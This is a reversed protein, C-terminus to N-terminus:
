TSPAKPQDFTYVMSVGEIPKQAVGNIMTPEKVGAAELITPVIDIVSSFQLRIEGTQKIRKPWSIVLGNRTGGFHSAVQKTWQFPTNMAHAWGVPYHNYTLPGGLDDMISLLYPLSETAGNGAVGVENAMGQLTGEGSAGNDGMEYIILTNDLEGTDEISQIVRGINYDCFALCGAYVEMMHAYLKKEDASRSDWSPIEKPRQTLKTGAPVVGQAIQRALTEEALKDWGM